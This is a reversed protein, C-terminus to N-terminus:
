IKLKLGRCSLYNFKLDLRHLNLGKIAHKYLVREWQVWSMKRRVYLKILDESFKNTGSVNQLKM